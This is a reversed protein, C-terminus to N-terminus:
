KLVDPPSGSTSTRLLSQSSFSVVLLLVKVRRGSERGVAGRKEEGTSDMVRSHAGVRGEERNRLRSEEKRPVFVLSFIAMSRFWLQGDGFSAIRREVGSMSVGLGRERSCKLARKRRRRREEDVVVM